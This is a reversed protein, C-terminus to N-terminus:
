WGTCMFSLSTVSVYVGASTYCNGGLGGEGVQDEIRDGSENCWRYGTVEPDGTAEVRGGSLEYMFAGVNDRPVGAATLTREPEERLEDQFSEDSKIREVIRDATERAEKSGPEHGM